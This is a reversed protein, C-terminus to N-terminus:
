ARRCRKKKKLTAVFDPEPTGDPRRLEVLELGGKKTKASVHGVYRGAGHLGGPDCRGRCEAFTSKKPPDLRQVDFAVSYQGRAPSGARIARSRSSSSGPAPPTRSSASRSGQGTVAPTVDGGAPERARPPLYSGFLPSSERVRSRLTDGAGLFVSYADTDLFVHVTEDRRHRVFRTSRGLFSAGSHAAVPLQVTDALAAGARRPWFVISLFDHHKMATSVSDVAWPAPQRLEPPPTDQCRHSCEWATANESEERPEGRRLFGAGAARGV